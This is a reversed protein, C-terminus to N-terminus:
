LNLVKSLYKKLCLKIEKTKVFRSLNEKEINIRIVSYGLEKLKNDRTDDKNKTHFQQGDIELIVKGPLLFDVHINLDKFYYQLKYEIGFSRLAKAFRYEIINSPFQIDYETLSDRYYRRLKRNIIRLEFSLGVIAEIAKVVKSPNSSLFDETLDLSYIFKSLLKIESKTLHHKAIDDILINKNPLRLNYYQQLSSLEWSTLNLKSKLDNKNNSNSITSELIELPILKKPRYWNVKNSNNDGKQKEAIKDRHSKDIDEKTFWKYLSGRVIRHGLGFHYQFDKIKWNNDFFYYQLDRKKIYRKGDIVELQLKRRPGKLSKIELPRNNKKESM